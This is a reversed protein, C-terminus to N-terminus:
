PVVPDGDRLAALDDALGALEDTCQLADLWRDPVAAAGFRAGAVAGTVAGITDADGGRNVAGVVAAELSDSSLAEYLATRLTSVVYPSTDLASPDVGDPVPRLAKVLERPADDGVAALARELPADAGALAGAITCNLVACGYTSSPAAHTIASSERSAAVLAGPDDAFAVALPACRMVSGNGSNRGYPRGDYVRQGATEWDVGSALLEIAEETIGGVAPHDGEYWAVFRGAVDAPDWGGVDVLSRAICTALATDDTTAGAPGDGGVMETLRGHEREISASSRFEVPRGLADGCAVGWLV